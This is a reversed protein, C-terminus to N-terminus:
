GLGYKQDVEVMAAIREGNSAFKRFREGEIIRYTLCCNKVIGVVRLPLEAERKVM